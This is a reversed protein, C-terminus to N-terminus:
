EMGRKIMKIEPYTSLRFEKIMNAKLELPEDFIRTISEHKKPLCNFWLLAFLVVPIVVDFTALLVSIFYM